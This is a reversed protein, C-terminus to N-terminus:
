DTLSQLYNKIKIRDETAPLLNLNRLADTVDTAWASWIVHGQWNKQEYVIHYKEQDLKGPMVILLKKQKTNFYEGVKDYSLVNWAPFNYFHYQQFQSVQEFGDKYWQAEKVFDAAQFPTGVAFHIYALSVDNVFIAEYAPATKNVDKIMQGLGPQWSESLTFNYISFYRLLFFLLFGLYILIGMRLLYKPLYSIGVASILLIAVHLDLLRNTIPADITLSSFIPSALLYLILLQSKQDKWNRCLFYLGLLFPIVLVPNMDGVGIARLNHWPNHDGLFFLYSFDFASLYGKGMQWGALLLRHNSVRSILSPVGAVLSAYSTGLAQDRLEQNNVVTTTSKGASIARTAYLFIGGILLIAIFNLIIIQKSKIQRRYILTSGLFLMPLLILPLNYFLIGTASALIALVFYKPKPLAKLWLGWALISFFLGAIPEYANRAGALHWFDFALLFMPLLALKKNFGIQRALYFLAPLTLIAFIATPLRASWPNLGLIKVFPLSSYILGPLKYDGFSRFVLPWKQGHEDHGTQLLSYANYAIAAEDRHLEQPLSGLQYLRLSAAVLIILLFLLYPKKSTQYM